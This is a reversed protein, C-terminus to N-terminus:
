RGGQEQDTHDKQFFPSDGAEFPVLDEGGDKQAHGPDEGVVNEEKQPQLADRCAAGREDHGAVRDQDREKRGEEEPLTEVGPFECPDGKTQGPSGEDDGMPM